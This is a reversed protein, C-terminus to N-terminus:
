DDGVPNTAAPVDYDYHPVRGIDSVPWYAFIAKGIISDIAIPGFYRSDQSSTRNDGLVYVYGEPVIIAERCSASPCNTPKVIHEEIVQQGNVFVHGDQFSVEDGATAIIRKIYPKDDNPPNFVVIDGREVAGFPTVVHDNINIFPLWNILASLNYTEYAHRNVLLMEGNDLNPDMSHGDVQFNLVLQRVGFFILAALILTEITERLAGSRKKTGEQPAEVIPTEETAAINSM